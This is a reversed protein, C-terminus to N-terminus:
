PQCLGRHDHQAMKGLRLAPGIADGVVLQGFQAPPVLRQQELFQAPQHGLIEVEPQNPDGLVLQVRQQVIGVVARGDVVVVASVMGSAGTSGMVFGPSM